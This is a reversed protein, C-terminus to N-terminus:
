ESWDQQLIIDELGEFDPIYNHPVNHGNNRSKYLVIVRRVIHCYIVQKM